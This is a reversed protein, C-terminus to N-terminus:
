FRFTVRRSAPCNRRRQSMLGHRYIKPRGPQGLVGWAVSSRWRQVGGLNGSGEPLWTEDSGPISHHPWLPTSNEALNDSFGKRDGIGAGNIITARLLITSRLTRQFRGAELCSADKRIGIYESTVSTAM